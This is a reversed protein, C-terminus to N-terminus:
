REALVRSVSPKIMLFDASPAFDKPGYGPKGKPFILGAREMRKFFIHEFMMPHTQVKNEEKLIFKNLLTAVLESCYYKRKHKENLSGLLLKNNYPNGEMTKSFYELIEQSTKILEEKNPHLFNKHRVFIIKENGKKSKLIETLTFQSVGTKPSTDLLYIKKNIKLVFSCHFYRMNQTKFKLLIDGTQLSPVELAFILNSLFCFVCIITKKQFNM